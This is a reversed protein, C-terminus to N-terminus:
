HAETPIWTIQLRKKKKVTVSDFQWPLYECNKLRTNKYKLLSINSYTIEPPVKHMAPQNIIFHRIILSIHMEILQM